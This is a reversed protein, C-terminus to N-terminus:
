AAGSGLEEAKIIKVVEKGSIWGVDTGVAETRVPEKTTVLGKVEFFM